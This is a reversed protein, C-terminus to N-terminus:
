ADVWLAASWPGLGAGTDTRQVTGTTAVPEGHLPIRDDARVAIHSDSPHPNALLTLSGGDFQWRVRIVGRDISRDARLFRTATKPAVYRNRAAVYRRTAELAEQADPDTLESWDLKAEQFTTQSLPDPIEEGAFGSFGAFEERRGKRVADALEGEFDCFFPFRKKTGFEEGMFLMPIQPSLLTLFRLLAVAEIPAIEALREGLARNGIQDHNQAFAIFAAPPLHASPQGRPEGGRNESPEGQYAFGESLVRALDAAPDRAYPRYYGENEGTALVHLPHHYDDNWQADFLLPGGDADRELLDALNDDNELILHPQPHLGKQSSSLEKLFSARGDGLYAHVADFRLGDFGYGDVWMLANEVFFRRVTDRTFDIAAGWPTKVSPDFFSKDYSPIFNGEPGFHNYVVDLFISLGREHAAAILAALDEPTGYANAPAFLLVGDYGWNWRGPFGNIPLLEVATYGADTFHDLREILGRFTGAETATGVHVEAIVMDTWRRGLRRNRGFLGPDVVVSPGTVGDAQQRSAPDPVERGDVRFLYTAGPGTEPSLVSWFGSPDRDMAQAAGGVVVEVAGADPAHLRFLVGDDRVSPGFLTQM